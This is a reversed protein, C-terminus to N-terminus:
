YALRYDSYFLHHTSTTLLALYSLVQFAALAAVRAATLKRGTYSLALTLWAVPITLLGLYHADVWFMKADLEPSIEQMAYAASWEAGALMMVALSTAGPAARRHRWAYLALLVSVLASAFLPLVAYAM